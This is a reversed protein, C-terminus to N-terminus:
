ELNLQRYKGRVTRQIEQLANMYDSATADQAASVSKLIKSTQTDSRGITASLIPAMHQLEMLIADYMHATKSAVDWFYESKVSDQIRGKVILRPTISGSFGVTVFIADIYGYTMDLVQNVKLVALDDEAEVSLGSLNLNNVWLDNATVSSFKGLGSLLLNGSIEMNRSDSSMSGSVTASKTEFKKDLTTRNQFVVNNAVIKLASLDEGFQAMPVDFFKVNKIDHGGLSLASMMTADSANDSPVRWLYLANDRSISTTEVIGNTIDVGLDITDTHWSGFAGYAHTGEVFGMSNGGLSVIERTRMPTVDAADRVIVGQLTAQGTTDSSKLIRLQYKNRGSELLSDPLGFESLEDLNVRVINRGVTNLLEERNAMMYRELAVQIETMSNAIATNEARTVANQQYRFVFPIIVTALAVSLLLEILMSGSQSKRNNFIHNLYKM